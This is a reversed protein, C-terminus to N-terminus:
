EVLQIVSKHQPLKMSRAIAACKTRLLYAIPKYSTESFAEYNAMGKSIIVDAHALAATAQKPLRTFDVGVCFCGTTFLDDVVELFRLADADAKTADSLVPVDKVIASIHLDPNFRKLEACLVRDFVIEGCNDTCLVLRRANALLKRLRPYDDHGLGEAYLRDFMEELMHPHISGGEIGFDLVNGIIACVMSTRLPDESQAILTTVKPLLAQVVTTSTQKLRAYPDKDGLVSYVKDHIKTAITASCESPDYLESLLSCATRLAETQRKTDSTSLESEFFIRKLLCPVCEPQIKM